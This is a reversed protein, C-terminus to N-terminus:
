NIKVLAGKVSAIATAELDMNATAQIKVDALSTIEVGLGSLVLKGTSSTIKIDSQSSITIQNKSADIVIQNNNKDIIEVKEGGSSDDFRIIHGSRSKYARKNNKGDSNSEPPKDKGNWLAGIVYPYEVVGHEFVVLVEDDVEPLAYFGRGSGAMPSAVRAWYSEDEDNLWPFKVKLRGLGDPDRNNTVLGVVVGYIRKQERRGLLAEITAVPMM